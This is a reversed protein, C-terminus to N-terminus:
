SFARQGLSHLLQRCQYFVLGLFCLPVSLGSTRQAMRSPSQDNFDDSIPSLCVRENEDATEAQSLLSPPRLLVLPSRWRSMAALSAPLGKGM